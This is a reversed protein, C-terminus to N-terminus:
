TAKHRQVPKIEKIIRYLEPDLRNIYMAIYPSDIIKRFKNNGEARFIYDNINVSSKFQTYDIEYM